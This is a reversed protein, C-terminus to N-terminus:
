SVLHHFTTPYEYKSRCMMTGPLGPAPNETAHLRNRNTVQPTTAANHAAKQRMM